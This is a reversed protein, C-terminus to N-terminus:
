ALRRLSAVDAWQADDLVVVIPATASLGVLLRSVADYVAFRGTSPDPESVALRPALEPVLRAIEGAGAGAAAVLIDDAVREAVGRVIQVWPWFAPVGEAEFSRSWGVLSGRGRARDVVAEALRTKGIGPEGTVLVIRGRGSASEILAKDLVALERDRGVLPPGTDRDEWV